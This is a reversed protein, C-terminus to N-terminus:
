LLGQRNRFLLRPLLAAAMYVLWPLLAQWMAWVGSVRRDAGAAL